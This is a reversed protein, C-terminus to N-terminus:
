PRIMLREVSTETTEGYRDNVPGLATRRHEGGGEEASGAPKSPM